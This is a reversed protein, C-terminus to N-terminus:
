GVVGRIREIASRRRLHIRVSEGGSRATLNYSREGVVLTHDAVYGPHVYLEAFAGPPDYVLTGNERTVNARAPLGWGYSEFAMRTNELRDGRVAYGDYVRSQEVSHTYELGIDTGNEVPVVLLETGSTANEVVLTRQTGVGAAVGAFVLLAVAGLALLRGSRVLAVM